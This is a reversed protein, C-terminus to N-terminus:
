CKTMVNGTLYYDYNKTSITPATGSKSENGAGHAAPIFFIATSVAILVYRSWSQINKLVLLKM